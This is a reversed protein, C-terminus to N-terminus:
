RTGIEKIAEIVPMMMTYPVKGMEIGTVRRIFEALAADTRNRIKGAKAGEIWLARAKSMPGDLVYPFRTDGAAKARTKPAGAAHLARIVAELQRSTMVRISAEGNAHIALFDRWIADDGALTAVQRRLTQVKKILDKLDNSPNSKPASM